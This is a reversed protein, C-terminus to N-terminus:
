RLNILKGSLKDGYFNLVYVLNIKQGGPVFYKVVTTGVRLNGNFVTAIKQGLVTYLDLTAPGALGSQIAFNINEDFPNPSAVVSVRCNAPLAVPVAASVGICLKADKAKLTYTGVSLGTFVNSSQFTTGGDISYTYPGVGGGATVTISAKDGTCTLPTSVTATAMITPCSALTVGGGCNLSLTTNYAGTGGIADTVIIIHNGSVVGNFISNSAFASGDLSYTYPAVGGTATATLTTSNNLCAGSTVNVVISPCTAARNVLLTPSATTCGNADKMTITVSTGSAIGEFLGSSQYTVGGDISYQLTGTGGSATATVAAVGNACTGVTFGSFTIASPAANVTICSGYYLQGNADKVAVVYVGATLGSFVNCSVYVGGNVSYTYPVAGGSATVTLSTTGGYCSIQGNIAATATLPSVTSGGSITLPASTVTSGNADKVTITVTVGVAIGIFVGTSQYTVGGNISYQYPATGGSVTATVTAVGNVVVSATATVTLAAPAAAVTVSTATAITGNADKVTVVYTGATLGSFVNSSVYSGGNLSYTYPAVGGTATVTLSTTGGNILIQGNLTVTVTLNVITSGGSITLPASTATIGNADKVTITVTVGVAIGTFVGTSQYTVGGNISYQYPATGGTATATVTAVGNVVVSATATVTLASSQCSVLVTNTATFTCNNNDKITVTYSGNALGTFVSSTQFTGGNLSYQLTGSGGSAVITISGLNGICAGATASVLTIPLPATVNVSATSGLCGNADKAIIVFAGASVTFINSTQFTVGGDISFTYPAAGGTAIATLTTTGSICTIATGVTATATITPCTAVCNVVLATSLASCGNADKVTVTYTGSVVGTFVNSAQFTTGNISYQLTGTGGSAVVTITAVNGVCVGVTASAITVAAPATVVLSATSGLCGNADKAIIV